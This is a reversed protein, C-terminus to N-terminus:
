VFVCDGSGADFVKSVNPTFVKTWPKAHVNNLEIGRKRKKDEPVPQAKSRKGGLSTTITWAAWSCIICTGDDSTLAVSDCAPCTPVKPESIKTGCAVCFSADHDNAYHCEFCDKTTDAAAM